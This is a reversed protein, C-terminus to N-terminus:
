FPILLSQGHTSGVSQLDKTSMVKNFRCGASRSRAILFSPNFTLNLYAALLKKSRHWFTFTQLFYVIYQCALKNRIISGMFVRLVLIFSQIFNKFFFTMTKYGCRYCKITKFFYIDVNRGGTKGTKVTITIAYLTRTGAFYHLTFRICILKYKNIVAFFNTTM